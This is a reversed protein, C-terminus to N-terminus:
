IDIAGDIVKRYKGCIDEKSLNRESYSRGNKGMAECLDKDRSLREISGALEEADGPPINVGCSALDVIRALESESDAIALVPRSSAMISYLKSPVSYSGFGNGLPVLCVNSSALVESFRESPQFPLFVVNELGRSEAEEMFIDKFEGRKIFVFMINKNKSLIEASGYLTDIGYRYSISGPLLAVFKDELGYERSLSNSRSLPRIRETDAFHPIVEIKDADIGKRELNKKMHESLVCVAKSTRYVFLEMRRLLRKLWPRRVIDLDFLIDPYIDELCYIFGCRKLRSILFSTLGILIPPHSVTFVFDQKGSLFSAMISTMFFSLANMVRIGFKFSRLFYPSIVPARLVNMGEWEEAVFFRWKYAKWREERGNLYYPISTLITIDYGKKKLDRLVEAYIHQISGEFPYWNMTYFLLRKTKIHEEKTKM